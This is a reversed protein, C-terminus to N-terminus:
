LQCFILRISRGAMRENKALILYFSNQIFFFFTLSASAFSFTSELLRRLIRANIRGLHALLPQHRFCFTAFVSLFTWKTCHVREGGQPTCWGKTYQHTSTRHSLEAHIWECDIKVRSLRLRPPAVKQLTPATHPHTPNPPSSTQKSLNEQNTWKLDKWAM